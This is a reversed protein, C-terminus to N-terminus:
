NRPIDSTGLKRLKNIQPNMDKALRPPIESMTKLVTEDESMNEEESLWVFTLDKATTWGDQSKTWEKVNKRQLESLIINIIKGIRVKVKKM